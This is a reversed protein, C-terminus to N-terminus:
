LIRLVTRSSLLLVVLARQGARGISVGIVVRLVVGIWMRIRTSTPIGTAGPSVLVIVNCITLMDALLWLAMSLGCTTLRM